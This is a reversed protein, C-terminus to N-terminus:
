VVIFHIKRRHIVHKISSQTEIQHERRCVERCLLQWGASLVTWACRSAASVRAERRMETQRLRAQRGRMRIVEVYEGPGLQNV